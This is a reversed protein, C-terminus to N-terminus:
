LNRWRKLELIVILILILLIYRQIFLFLIFIYKCWSLGSSKAMVDLSTTIFSTARTYEEDIMSLGKEFSELYENETGANNDEDESGVSGSEDEDDSDLRPPMMMFVSANTFNRLAPDQVYKKFLRSLLITMDLVHIM